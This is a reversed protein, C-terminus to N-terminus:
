ASQSSLYAHIASTFLAELRSTVKGPTDFNWRPSIFGVPAVERTTSSIFAEEATDLDAETLDREEIAIGAPPAIELLIERTIGPLCGSSLSPTAVKGARVIFFNASSCEAIQHKENQLLAEDFGEAHARENRSSPLAWSLIKTGSYPGASAVGDPELKLRQAVPWGVLGRTFILLDTPPRNASESWLGGENRIFSVRAMSEPRGNERAVDMVAQRVAGPKYPLPVGLRAADRAMRAWHREFAFPIGKYIRLTTFVGWGMLLGAQGPSLRCEALSVLRDNHFILSDM